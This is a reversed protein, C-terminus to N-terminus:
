LGDVSGLPQDCPECGAIRQAMDGFFPSIEAEVVNDKYFVPDRGEQDEPRAQQTIRLRKRLEEPLLKLAEPMIESFFRAGQSGGFVLLNFPDDGSSPKYPAKAAALVDPRVPNGTTVIKDDFPVTAPCM